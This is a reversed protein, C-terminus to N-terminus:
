TGAGGARREARRAQLDHVAGKDQHDDSQPDPQRDRLQELRRRAAEQRLEGLTERLRAVCSAKASAPTEDDDIERALALAAAALGGRALEKDEGAIDKLDRDVAVAVKLRRARAGPAPPKRRTAPKKKPDPTTKRAPM